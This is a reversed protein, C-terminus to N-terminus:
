VQFPVASPTQEDHDSSVLFRVRRIRVGGNRFPERDILLQFAASSGTLIESFSQYASEMDYMNVNLM